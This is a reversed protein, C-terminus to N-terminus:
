LGAKFDELLQQAVPKGGALTSRFAERRAKMSDKGSLVVDDLFRRIDDLGSGMYHNDLCSMGFANLHKAMAERSGVYMVPKGFFLYEGMFSSCDHVMADSSRFLEVYDGEVFMGNPLEEWRRYYEDTKQVGWSELSYLKPKLRPHPKFAFQLRGEYEKALALMGDAIELFHSYDLQEGPLISHHPAWIVRLVERSPDKWISLDPSAPSLLRDAMLYGSAVMNRGRTITYRSAIRIHHKSPYFIRWAVNHLLRNYFFADDEMNYCYPIYAFLSDNWLARIRYAPFGDDYPQAFFVIDPALTKVDLWKGTAEDYSDHYEYGKACFYERMQRQVWLHYDRGDGPYLYSVVMPNFRGDKMLLSFFGDYKWMGVNVAFFLVNIRDKRRVRRLIRSKRFLNYRLAAVLISLRSRLGSLVKVANKEEATAGFFWTCVATMLFSSLVVLIMRGSSSANLLYIAVPVVAATVSVAAARAFVEGLVMRFPLGTQRCAMIIREALIGVSALAVIWYSVEPPYGLRFALYSLPFALVNTISAMIEYRKVEGTAFIANVFPTGVAVFLTSLLAVRVFAVTHAPVIGLWLKLLAPAELIIPLAFFFYLLYSYKAGKCVLKHMYDRRGSAYSKTIQPNIATTINNIFRSVNGELKVTVDRAANVRVGFFVNMLLNIGHANLVSAVSGLFTWSSYSGIQRVIGKDISRLRVRCEPFSRRAYVGYILRVVVAVALMLVAYVMLKDHRTYRTALAAGLALLAEAISIYAFADMKEHAIIAANYPVSLMNVVFLFVSCHLVLRAAAMRGDPIVMKSELFWLGVAEALVLVVAALALQVFVTTSFVEQMRSKEKGLEFALFRSIAGSIAGTLVSFLAVFGGVAGYVGFDEQGLANLVVRSTYLGVLLLIVMRIYLFVTNRAIRRSNDSIGAVKAM